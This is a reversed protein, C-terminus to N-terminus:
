NHTQTAVLRMRSYLHIHLLLPSIILLWAFLSEIFMLVLSDSDILDLHKALM